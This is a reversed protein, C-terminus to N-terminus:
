NPSKSTIQKMLYRVLGVYLICEDHNERLSDYIPRQSDPSPKYELGEKKDYTTSSPEYKDLIFKIFDEDELFNM